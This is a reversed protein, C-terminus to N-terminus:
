FSKQIGITFTAVNASGSDPLSATLSASSLRAFYGVQAYASLTPSLGYSANVSAGVYEAPGNSITQDGYTINAGLLLKPSVNRTVQLSLGDSTQRATEGVPVASLVNAITGYALLSLATADPFRHAMTATLTRYREIANNFALGDAPVSSFAGLNSISEGPSVYQSNYLQFSGNNQANVELDSLNDLLRGAPTQIDDTLSATFSTSPTLTVTADGIYSPSNDEEGVRFEFMSLDSFRLRLGAYAIPGNLNQSLATTTDVSQYGGTLLLAFQRTIAYEFDATGERQKLGLAHQNEEVDSGILQWYLRSFDDGSTLKEVVSATTLQSPPVTGALQAAIPPAGSPTVFWVTGYSPVLESTAFSGFRFRLTPAFAYGYTDSINSNAGQPLTSGQATIAGLPNILVPQAFVRLDIKLYEPIARYDAIGTINTTIVPATGSRAFYDLQGGYSLAATLNATHELANLQLQLRSDFDGQTGTSNAVGSANTTYTESVAGFGTVLFSPLPASQAATAGPASKPATTQQAPTTDTDNDTSNANTDGSTTDNSSAGNGGTGTDGPPTDPMPQAGAPFATLLTLAFASSAAGRVAWSLSRSM